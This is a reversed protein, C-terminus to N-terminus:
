EANVGHWQDVYAVVIVQHTKSLQDVDAQTLLDAGEPPGGHEGHLCQRYDVGGGELTAPRWYTGKAKDSTYLVAVGLAAPQAQELKTIRTQLNM